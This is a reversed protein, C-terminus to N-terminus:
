SFAFHLLDKLKLVPQIKQVFLIGASVGEHLVNAVDPGAKNLTLM